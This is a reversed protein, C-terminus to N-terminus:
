KDIEKAKKKLEIMKLERGVMLKNVRELEKTKVMLNDESKKRAEVEKSLIVNTDELSKSKIRLDVTMEEALKMAQGRTFILSYVIFAFLSTITVGTSVVVLPLYIQYTELGYNSGAIFDITWRHGFLDLEVTKDIFATNDGTRGFHLPGKDYILNDEKYISQDYLSGDYVHIDLKYDQNLLVGRMFENMRFPSFVYGTLGASNSAIVDFIPVYMLFGAQVDTDTEQLLKVKGTIVPENILSARTMAKNRVPESLMDFGFARRNRDDFPELYKISSYIAREGVPTVKFEPYGESRVEKEFDILNEPRIIQTFGVGQIGPYNRFIDIREVYSKWEQRDVLRSSEYFAATSRLAGAYIELRKVIQSRIVEADTDLETEALQKMFGQTVFYASISLLIGVVLIAAPVFNIFISKPNTAFYAVSLCFLGLVFVVGPFAFKVTYIKAIEQRVQTVQDKISPATYTNSFSNWPEIKEKTKLDYYWATSEDHYSVLRGTIPEFWVSLDADVVIGRTKGVDPLNALNATQDAEINAHYEFVRLGYLRDERVFKMNAPADYNVHWYVFDEKNLNKPAFLYGERDHDGYGKMHKTSVPDIGFTRTVSIIPEGDHKRVDFTNDILLLNGKDEKVKYSFVTQSLQQGSYRKKNSDYFNDISDVRAEYVFKSNLQLLRPAIVVLWVATFILLFLGLCILSYVVAKSLRVSSSM